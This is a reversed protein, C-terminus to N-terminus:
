FFFRLVAVCLAACLFGAIVDSIYHVGSVVRIVAMVAAVVLFLVGIGWVQPVTMVTMAIVAASFVHRSPFSRGKTDKPIVPAMGFKEYPRPRDILRRLVSVAIFGDLPIVVTRLLGDNRNWLLWLLLLPYGAFIVATLIRNCNHLSKAMGSNERFPQTMKLYTEKTM